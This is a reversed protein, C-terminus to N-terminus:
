FLKVFENNTVFLPFTSHIGVNRLLMMPAKTAGQQRLEAVGEWSFFTFFLVSGRWILVLAKINTYGTCDILDKQINLHIFELIFFILNNSPPPTLSCPKSSM